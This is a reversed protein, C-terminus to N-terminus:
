ERWNLSLNKFVQVEVLIQKEKKIFDFKSNLAEKKALFFLM